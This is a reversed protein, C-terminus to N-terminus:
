EQQRDPRRSVRGAPLRTRRVHTEHTKGASSVTQRTCVDRLRPRESVIVSSSSSFFRVPDRLATAKTIITRRVRQDSPAPDRAITEVTAVTPNKLGTNGL